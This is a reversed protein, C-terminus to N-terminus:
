TERAMQRFTSNRAILEDFRGVDGIRGQDLLYIRDCDRVTTLRHAVVIVAKRKGLESIATTIERETIGDLASTAEDFVLVSPDHYLARAIGIRQRQGGSLRVGREGVVTDYGDPLETTVFEDLHALRAARLVAQHDIEADPVGLAINRTVTDDILFIDQPVYGINRQWAPVLDDTLPTGDVVMRGGTPRLLGLILNVLTTKGAGSSGVFAISESPRVSVSIGAIQMEAQGPYRFELGELDLGHHFPLRTSAEAPAVEALEGAAMIDGVEDMLGATAHIATFQKLLRDASPMLRYIALAYLSILGIVEGAGTGHALKVTVLTVIGGFVLVELVNRPLAAMVAQKVLLNSLRGCVARYISVFNGVRGLLKLERVGHLTQAACTHREANIRMRERGLRSAVRKTVQSIVGYIGGLLAVAFLTAVPEAYILGGGLIAIMLMDAVITLVSIVVGSVLQNSEVLINKGLVATNVTAFFLVPQALYGRLMRVSLDDVITCTFRAIQWSNLSAAANRVVLVGITLIGFLVLLDTGPAVGLAEVLRQYIRSQELKAPEAVGQIFAFVMGIGGLELVPMLCMSVLVRAAFPRRHQPILAWGRRFVRFM